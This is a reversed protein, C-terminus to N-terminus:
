LEHFPFSVQMPNLLINLRRRLSLGHQAGSKKNIFVLLPRSDSPLNVLEYQQKMGQLGSSQNESACKTQGEKIGEGRSNEDDHYSDRANGCGNSIKEGTIGNLEQHSDETSHRCTDLIGNSMANGLSYDNGRKSKRRRKRIQGQVSSAFENAGQTISSLLGGTVIKNGLDKVCLPSLVLRKYFGLDCVDDVKGLM